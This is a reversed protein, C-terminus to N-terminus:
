ELEVGKEKIETIHVPIIVPPNKVALPVRNEPALEPDEHCGVCGRRENPRLWLWSCPGYLLRGDKDLTRIQFPTDALVKLYFSGDEEVQVVGYTTDIGLVEIMSAKKTGPDISMSQFGRFNIDQCLLLGTKVGMDVESPLKKPREHKEAVVADLISVEPVECVTRIISRGVPDFEYLAFNDAGPKRYSVLLKGSPLGSAANFDGALASTLNIRSHLPRNYNITVLDQESSDGKETEIFLIRGDTTERACSVLASGEAGKYFLDAKTGDPRLVMFMPDGQEPLLQRRVTLLRGDKLVTTACCAYPGFTIQRVDSGDANCTYLCYATKVTDDSTLKSFVVRGGPMYAPDTCNENLSTVQRSKLSGLEIEWVQWIDGENKQAAFLLHEGDYSIEPYCASYFEGTLIKLSWPKDPYLAAIQAKPIYRLCEGKSFNIDEIKGATQTIILMGQIVGNRCSKFLTCLLCLILIGPLLNLHRTKM